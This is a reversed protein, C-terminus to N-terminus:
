RHLTEIFSTKKVMNTTQGQEKYYQFNVEDDSYQLNYKSVSQLPTKGNRGQTAVRTVTFNNSSMEVQLWQNTDQTAPVWAGAINGTAIFHLRGQVAAHKSNHQSSATVQGDTIAGSEM